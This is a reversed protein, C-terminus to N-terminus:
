QGLLKSIIYYKPAVNIKILDSVNVILGIGTIVVVTASILVVAFTGDTWYDFRDVNPNKLWTFLTIGACILLISCTVVGCISSIYEYRIIQQFVEPAQELMFDKSSDIYEFMKTVIEKQNDEMKVGKWYCQM